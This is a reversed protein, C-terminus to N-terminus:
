LSHIQNSFSMSFPGALLAKKNRMVLWVIRKGCESDDYTSTGYKTDPAMVADVRCYQVLAGKPSYLM